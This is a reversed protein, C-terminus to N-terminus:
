IKVVEIAAHGDHSLYMVRRRRLRVAGRRLNGAYVAAEKHLAIVDSEELTRLMQDLTVRM